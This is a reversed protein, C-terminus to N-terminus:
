DWMVDLTQYCSMKSAHHAKLYEKLSEFNEITPKHNMMTSGYEVSMKSTSMRVFMKEFEASPNPVIYIKHYLELANIFSHVDVGSQFTPVYDRMANQLEKQIHLSKANLKSDNEVIEVSSVNETKTKITEAISDIEVNIKQMASENPDEELKLELLKTHTQSLLLELSALTMKGYQPHSM